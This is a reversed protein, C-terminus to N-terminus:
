TFFEFSGFVAKYDDFLSESTSFMNLADRLRQENRDREQREWEAGNDAQEKAM